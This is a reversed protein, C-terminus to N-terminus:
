GTRKGYGKKLESPMKLCWTIKKYELLSVAVLLGIPGLIASLVCLRETGTNYGYYTMGAYFVMWDGKEIGYALFGCVVHVIPYWTWFEM